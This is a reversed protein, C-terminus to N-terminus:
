VITLLPSPALEFKAVAVLMMKPSLPHWHFFIVLVESSFKLDTGHLHYTKTDNPLFSYAYTYKIVHMIEKTTTDIM